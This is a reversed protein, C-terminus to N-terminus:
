DLGSVASTSSSALLGRRCSQFRESSNSARHRATNNIRSGCNRARHICPTQATQPDRIFLVDQGLAGLEESRNWDQRLSQTHQLYLIARRRRRKQLPLSRSLSQFGNNRWNGGMKHQPGQKIASLAETLEIASM